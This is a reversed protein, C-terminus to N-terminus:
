ICDVENRMDCINKDRIKDNKTPRGIKKAPPKVDKPLRWEPQGPVQIAGPIEGAELLNYVQQRSIHYKKAYQTVTLMDNTDDGNRKDWVWNTCGYYRTEDSYAAPCNNHECTACAKYVRYQKGHRKCHIYESINEMWTATYTKKTM